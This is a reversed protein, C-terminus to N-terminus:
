VIYSCSSLSIFLSAVRFLLNSNNELSSWMRWEAVPIAVYFAAPHQKSFNTTSGLLPLTAVTKLSSGRSSYSLLRQM